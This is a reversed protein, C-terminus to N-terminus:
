LEPVAAAPQPATDRRLPSGIDAVPTSKSADSAPAKTWFEEGCVLARFHDLLVQAVCCTVRKGMEIHLFENPGHANSGPGLVGTTVFQAKPFSNSLMQMFPISGGEGVLRVGKQFYAHSANRLSFDLWPALDPACWGDNARIETFTVDADYPPNAELVKKIAASAKAADVNPPLRMSLKFATETRLVNGATASAPMGDVGITSLQPRWTRNLLMSYYDGDDVLKLKKHRPFALPLKDGLTAACKRAYEQHNAPVESWCEPVLVKGTTSDELRDLVSRAIRFSSPVIGSAVGSHVGETLVKVRLEGLIMGRLSQTLWLQEFNGCGSDLCIILSPTGIAPALKQMYFPLDPSGSEECAEILVVCRAHPLKQEKCAKVACIAGFIAYGDDAGGRGYLKGDRIVPTFPGLGESWFETMPPQKDLHGYMLVTEETKQDGDITIFIVPTRKEECVVEVTLGPVKQDEVWKVMLDVARDQYGNTLVDKDFQPSQNPIRIYDSLAPIISDDWEKSIYEQCAKADM